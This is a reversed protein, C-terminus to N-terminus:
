ATLLEIATVRGVAQFIVVGGAATKPVPFDFDLDSSGQTMDGQGFSLITGPAGAFPDSQIRATLSDIFQDFAVQGDTSASADSKFICLLGVNYTRQKEGFVAPFSRRIESQKAIFVYIVAGFGPGAPQLAFLDAENAVKPLAQYVSSLYTIPVGSVNPDLFSAIAQRVESKPM